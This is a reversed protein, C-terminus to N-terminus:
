AKEMCSCDSWVHKAVHARGGTGSVGVVRKGAAQSPRLQECVPEYTEEKPPLAADKLRKGQRKAEQTLPAKITNFSQNPDCIFKYFPCRWVVHGSAFM